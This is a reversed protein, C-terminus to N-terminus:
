EKSCGDRSSIVDHILDDHAVDVRHLPLSVELPPPLVVVALEDLGAPPDRLRTVLKREVQQQSALKENRNRSSNTGYTFWSGLMVQIMNRDRCAARVPEGRHNVNTDKSSESADAEFVLDM